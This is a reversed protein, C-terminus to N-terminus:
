LVQYASDDLPGMYRQSKTEGSFNKGQLFAGLLKNSRKLLFVLLEAKLDKSGSATSPCVRSLRKVVVQLARCAANCTNFVV